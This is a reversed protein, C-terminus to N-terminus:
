GIEVAMGMMGRGGEGRVVRIRLTAVREQTEDGGGGLKIGRSVGTEARGGRADQRSMRIADDCNGTTMALMTETRGREWETRKSDVHM